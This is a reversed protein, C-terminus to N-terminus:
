SIEEAQKLVKRLRALRSGSASTIWKKLIEIFEAKDDTRIAILINEAYRPADVPRSNALRELLYPIIQLRYEDKRAAIATLTKIGADNTIISGAEMTKKVLELHPSIKDVQLSAITSLAIMGGWVMRNNRHKLLKIFDEVYEAILGPALYGLEYLVKLCDSQINPERNWLNEAIERIDAPNHTQALIHAVEQNPVEDRRDQYFAIKHLVSM